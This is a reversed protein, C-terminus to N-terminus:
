RGERIHRKEIPVYCCDFGFHQPGLLELGKLLRWEAPAALGIVSVKQGPYAHPNQNPLNKEDDFVCILDPTTVDVAENRWTILNENKYWVRYTQGSFEGEGKIETTGVTFGECTEYQSRTVEGKFLLFGDCDRAIATSALEGQALRERYVKGIEWARSIAGKIVVNRMVKAQVPHDVVGITNKSAVALARVLMEARQDNVVRPFIAVDGFQNAVAIPYIPIDFICFTSHILEPVARGAADADLIYKGLLAAVYFAQATNGGGLETSIVGYLDQGFFEELAKFALFPQPESLRPLNAYQADSESNPPSISGCTYPVAIWAEDPVENFDVLCFKKGLSLATDILRLGDTLSGGGGTGLIAAGHLIDHLDQKQLIRM